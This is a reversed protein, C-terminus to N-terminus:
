GLFMALDKGKTRNTQTGEEAEFFLFLDPPACEFSSRFIKVLKLMTLCCSVIFSLVTM